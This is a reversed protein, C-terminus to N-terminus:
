RSGRVLCVDDCGAPYCGDDLHKRCLRGYTYHWRGESGRRYCRMIMDGCDIELKYQESGCCHTFGRETAAPEVERDLTPPPLAIPM